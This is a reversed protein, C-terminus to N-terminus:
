KFDILFNNSVKFVLTLYCIKFQWNSVSIFISDSKPKLILFLWLINSMSFSYSHSNLRFYTYFSIIDNDSFLIFIISYTMNDSLSGPFMFKFKEGPSTKTQDASGLTSFCSFLSSFSKVIQLIQKSSFTEMTNRGQPWRTEQGWHAGARVLHGIQRFIM